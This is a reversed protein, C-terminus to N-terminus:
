TPPRPTLQELAVPLATHAWSVLDDDSTAYKSRLLSRARADEETDPELVRAHADWEVTGIRISVAAHTLVNRVWDSTERGGAMLYVVDGDLAFWIEITHPNGTRRGITTLDCFSEDAYANPLPESV